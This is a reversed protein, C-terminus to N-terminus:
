ALCPTATLGALTLTVTYLFKVGQLVIVRLGNAAPTKRCTYLFKVTYFITRTEARVPASQLLYWHM